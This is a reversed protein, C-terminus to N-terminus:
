TPLGERLAALLETAHDGNVGLWVCATSVSNFAISTIESRHLKEEFERVKGWSSNPLVALSHPGLQPARRRLREGMQRVAQIPVHPLGAATRLDVLTRPGPPFAPDTWMADERRIWEEPTVDADWVVFTCREDPDCHYAIGL